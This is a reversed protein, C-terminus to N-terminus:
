NTQPIRTMDSQNYYCFNTKQLKQDAGPRDTRINGRRFRIDREKKFIFQHRSVGSFRLLGGRLYGLQLLKNRDTCVAFFNPVVFAKPVLDFQVQAIKRFGFEAM